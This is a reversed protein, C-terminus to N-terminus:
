ACSRLSTSRRAPPQALTAASAPSWLLGTRSAKQTPTWPPSCRLRLMQQGLGLTAYGRCRSPVVSGWCPWCRPSMCRPGTSTLLHPLRPSVAPRRSCVRPLRLALHVVSSACPATSALLPASTVPSSLSSHWVLVSGAQMEAPISDYHKGHEPSQEALHSGPVLRTAGNAETFDTLAWITNYGTAVHPKPLPILGPM